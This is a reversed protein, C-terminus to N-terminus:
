SEEQPASQTGVGAHTASTVCDSSGIAPLRAGSRTRGCSAFVGDQAVAPVQDPPALRRRSDGATRDRSKPRLRAGLHRLPSESLGSPLTTTTAGTRQLTPPSRAARRTAVRLDLRNHENAPTRRCRQGGHGHGASDLPGMTGCGCRLATGPRLRPLIFLWSLQWLLGRHRHGRADRQDLLWRQRGSHLRRRAQDTAPTGTTASRGASHITRHRRQTSCTRAPTDRSRLRRCESLRM